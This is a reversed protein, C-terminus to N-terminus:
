IFLFIQSLSAFRKDKTLCLAYCKTPKRTPRNLSTKRQFSTEAFHGFSQPCDRVIEPPFSLFILIQAFGLLMPSLRLKSGEFIRAEFRLESTRPNESIPCFKSPSVQLPQATLDSNYAGFTRLSSFAIHNPAFRLFNSFGGNM